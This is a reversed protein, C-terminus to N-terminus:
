ESGETGAPVFVFRAKGDVFDKRGVSERETMAAFFGLPLAATECFLNLPFNPVVKIGILIPQGIDNLVSFMWYGGTDNWAFRLQYPKGLLTIRSTSDNMDPVAIIIYDM